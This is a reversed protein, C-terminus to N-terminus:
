VSAITKVVAYIYTISSYSLLLLICISKSNVYRGITRAVFVFNRALIYIIVVLFTVIIPHIYGLILHDIIKAHGFCLNMSGTFSPKLNGISLLFPLAKVKMFNYADDSYDFLFYYDIYSDSNTAIFNKTSNTADNVLQELVSYYFLLGYAYGATIDFKFHLLVFIFSIIVIWYLFSVGFLFLLSYTISATLCKDVPVCETTDYKIAYGTSYNCEGCALDGWYPNCQTDRDPFM